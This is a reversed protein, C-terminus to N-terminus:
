KYVKQETKIVEENFWLNYLKNFKNKNNLYITQNETTLKIMYTKNNNNNNLIHNVHKDFTQYMCYFLKYKNSNLYKLYEKNGMVVDTVKMKCEIYESSFNFSVTKIM